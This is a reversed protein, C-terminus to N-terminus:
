SDTNSNVMQFIGEEFTYPPTFNLRENTSKNDIIFSGFLRNAINPKIWNILNQIFRPIPIIPAKRQYADRIETVIETTSKPEKDGAIYIGTKNLKLLHDILAVM